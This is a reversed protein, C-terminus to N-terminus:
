ANTRSYNDFLRLLDQAWEIAYRYEGFLAGQPMDFTLCRDRIEGWEAKEISTCLDLAEKYENSFGMLAEKIDRHLPLEVVCEEMPRQLFVPICSLMGTLFFSSAEKEKGILYSIRECLKARIYCVKMVEYPISDTKAGMEKLMLVYAWKKVEDFGLLMIAQAISKIPEIRRYALSNILKLLKYSLSVDKEIKEAVASVVPEPQSLEKILEIHQFAPLSTDYSTMIVPKSFFFGQYYAFGLTKLELYEEYTEVKEALLELRYTSIQDKLAKIEQISYQRIDVKVIDALNLLENIYPQNQHYVFDYLAIQYGKAKLISCRDVVEATLPINELVEIVLQNHPFCFPLESKLLNETFNVFCKKQDAIKSFGMHYFSNLMVEATAQDGDIGTFGQDLKSGRYLLEYAMVECQNNFIPQRAVYVEM